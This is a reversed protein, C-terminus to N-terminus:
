LGLSTTILDGSYAFAALVVGVYFAEHDQDERLGERGRGEGARGGQGGEWVPGAWTGECTGCGPCPCRGAM